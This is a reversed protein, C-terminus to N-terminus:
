LFILSHFTSLSEIAGSITMFFVMFLLFVFCFSSTMQCTSILWFYGSVAKTFFMLRILKIYYFVSFCTIIIVFIVTFIQFQDLLCVIVSLKMFFGSLPPIGAMSFLTLSLLLSLGLNTKSVLGWNLIFKPFISKNSVLLIILFSSMVTLTYIVIYIMCAKICLISGSAIALCLIGTNSISSYAILRKIRKQYIAAITAWIVSLLCCLWFFLTLSNKSGQFSVYILKYLIVVYVIKPATATFTTLSTISGEYVDCLWYHFPVVGLKFLFSLVVM